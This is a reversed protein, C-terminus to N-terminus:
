EEPLITFTSGASRGYVEPFYFEQGTAPIVNYTGALGMRLTYVYEYTGRPLYTAYLVVKEDRFETNSFYWWGWGTSLPDIRELEPQTGVQQSTNLGPDVADSGAPIPDEIVAYHLNSPAIITLRVNVLQGVRAETIPTESEDGVLTYRRELIIGRDLAEVEPVPLYNTLHATYYLAGAGESRSIVVQNATDRLLEAVDVRLVEVERANAETAEGQALIEGNLSAEFTYAPRLEGTLVMWDTLAMVAWATEQTTEWADATRASMLWRVTNALLPNEPELKILARLVIATTRTDTNWNWYDVVGEEWHAGTASLVASNLLDSALVDLRPDAPNISYIAEALYARAYIALRDRTEYLNAVRGEDVGGSMALAYLVFAQRNLRWTEQRLGTGSMNNILFNRGNNIVADSVPYGQARAETLGVVAYATTLINSDDQVFWGWGGDIHQWAYLRQLAFAVEEDLNAKLVPDNLGLQELARVTMINPLFRSVTQELCQHPFNELYELGETTAAALSREVRVTLNGQTVDMGTPLMVGETISGGEPLMGATGVTEQVEYRYVPLLREAGLGLPPKSADAYTQDANVASFTLDISSVDGVTVQWNVRQRAGAPITVVQEAESQLTVGTSVLTVTVTQEADTNNNVVAGLELTDGVVMFRPTVPRILLPKTSLLDFTTQGVLMNGDAGSTVARADLRWTTLNDPLTVTFQAEGNADTPLAGNWFATDVFEERIDFIGGEGFGGGGGKVTDLTTQTIQDTNLTLPTATHVSLGQQGYFFNLIPGSNPDAITLVALDTLGVGVEAQVPNGEHDTARVTYTVEDGPGAQEQDTSIDLTIDKSANDVGLQILGMRFGAVPTNEDVGKVILVSVYINPVHDETIPLEYVYSNSTLTVHEAQLVGGREVTVLAEATGQFPSAILIQATDGPVYDTKDSILDIRNSNQQRWAVYEQGSVWLTEASRITNGNADRTTAKIKFIGANPPTFTYVARGDADTTASGSTVPIEEVEWTWTTRGMEDQEQVSSWIREVVDIELTQGSVPQSDWDVTILNIQSEEGALGVYEEPGVGVYLLGQHIVMPARGSVAQDSEDTVTAELTFIQSQSDDDLETPVDILLRGQADAVGTGDAVLGNNNEYFEGPGADYDIDAFSYRGNGTYNFYYPAAIINYTVDAESVAGGFFYRSEVAVQLPDGQVVADRDPTVDVQFEPSRYEAVTFGVLGNEGYYYMQDDRGPLHVVLRYYGLATEPSLNFSGSFTGFPTLPLDEQYITEDSENKVTVSLTNTETVPTYTVDDRQRVVGRFYVPQDPRYIPRDTYLYARYPEPQSDYPQGFYYPEIGDSWFNAAASFYTDTQLVALLPAYLDRLRPIDFRVLGEDDTTGTGLVQSEDSLETMDGYLTLPVGALPAGTNVDTAWVLVEDISVKMVLNANGVIMVHSRPEYGRQLLTPSSARLLYLGPALPGGDEAGVTVEVWEVPVTTEIFYEAPDSIGEAVWGTLEDGLRVEWWVISDICEPGGVVELQYSRYILTLIEGDGPTARVRLADPEAVVQALDGVHVRSPLAGPCSAGANQGEVAGLDLLEYRLVNEPITRRIQQQGILDSSTPVYTTPDGYNSQSAVQSLLGSLPMRYLTLDMVSINRMLAFLQTQENGANYFGFSGPVQLSLEPDYPATTYRVVTEQAIANGYFDEMGAELTVTYSSSPETPFSVSLSYDYDSYYFDPERWPEPEIVIRDRVTDLEMPSAFYIVFGQWPTVDEQGDFPTTRLVAPLPVTTFRFSNQGELRGGGVSMTTAPNLLFTYATELALIEDPDFTLITGAENWSFTGAVPANPQDDPALLFSAEVSPRDMPQNFTIRVDDEPLRQATFDQPDTTVVQPASVTFQWSVPEALVAGNVATLGAPVTATYTTGGSFSVAPRFVFIATNLWEGQGEVAPELTLPQPLTAADEVMGLPVVPRNFIVTIVSDAEVGSSGDAPLVDTVVLADPDIGEEGETTEFQPTAPALELVGTPTSDQASILGASLMWLALGM